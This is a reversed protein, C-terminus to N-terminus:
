SSCQVYIPRNCFRYTLDSIQLEWLPSSLSQNDQPNHRQTIKKHKCANRLFTEGGDEADATPLLKRLVSALM